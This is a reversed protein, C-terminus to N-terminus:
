DMSLVERIRKGTGKSDSVTVKIQNVPDPVDMQFPIDPDENPAM